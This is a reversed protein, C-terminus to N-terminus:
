ARQDTQRWTLAHAHTQTHTHTHPLIYTHTHTSTHTHTHVNKVMDPVDIQKAGCGVCFKATPPDLVQILRSEYSHSEFSVHGM